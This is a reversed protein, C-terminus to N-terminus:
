TGEVASLIIAAIHQIRNLSEVLADRDGNYLHIYDRAADIVNLGAAHGVVFAVAEAELERVDRSAPRDSGRHLLEHAWEHAIVVYESAAPLGRLIQIAGGTSLGLAGDLADAYEVRIGAAVVADRLRALAAGADGSAVAIEPLAEGDTQAVDFVYAARFGLISEQEKATEDRNRRVIPAFIAIGKEGRRVFRGLRKWTQFGATPRQAAILWVNHVSYRHFRAMTRFM